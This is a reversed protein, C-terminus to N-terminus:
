CIHLWLVFVGGLGGIKTALTHIKRQWSLGTTDLPFVPGGGLGPSPIPIPVPDCKWHSSPGAGKGQVALAWPWFPGRGWPLRQCGLFGEWAPHGAERGKLSLSERWIGQPGSPPQM